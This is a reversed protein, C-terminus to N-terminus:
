SGKQPLFRRVIHISPYEYSLEAPSKEGKRTFEIKTVSNRWGSDSRWCVTTQVCSEYTDARREILEVVRALTAEATTPAM